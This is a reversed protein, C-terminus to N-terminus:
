NINQTMDYEKGNFVYKTVVTKITRKNRCVPCIHYTREIDKDCFKLDSINNSDPYNIPTDKYHILETEEEFIDKYWWKDCKECYEYDKGLLYYLERQKFNATNSFRSLIKTLEYKENISCKDFKELIDNLTNEVIRIDM